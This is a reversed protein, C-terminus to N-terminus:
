LNMRQIPSYIRENILGNLFHVFLHVFSVEVDPKIDFISMLATIHMKKYLQAVLKM